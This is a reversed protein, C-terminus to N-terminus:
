IDLDLSDDSDSAAPTPQRRFRWPQQPHYDRLLLVERTYTEWSTRVPRSFWDRVTHRWNHFTFSISRLTPLRNFYWRAARRHHGAQQSTPERYEFDISIRLRRLRRFKALSEVMAEDESEDSEDKGRRYEPYGLELFELNPFAVAIVDVLAPTPFHDLTLTLDALDWLHSVRKIVALAESPSLPLELRARPNDRHPIYLDKTAYIHLGALADPLQSFITDEPSCNSLRLSSLRPAVTALKKGDSAGYTFPPKLQGDTRTLDATYLMSLEKLCPMHSILRRASYYPSPTHETVAFSELHLWSIALFMSSILDGSIKLAKLKQSVSQLLLVVNHLEREIKAVRVTAKTPSTWVSITMIELQLFSTKPFCLGADDLRAQQIELENLQPAQSLAILLQSPVTQDIVLIAKTLAPLRPLTDFLASRLKIPQPHRIQQDRLTVQRILGWTSEPWVEEERNWNYVSRFIFSRLRERLTRCTMSLPIILSINCDEEGWRKELLMVTSDIADMFVCIIRLIENPLILISSTNTPPSLRSPLPSSSRSITVIPDQHPPPSPHKHCEPLLLHILRTM